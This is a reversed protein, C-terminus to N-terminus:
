STLGKKEAIWHEVIVQSSWFDTPNRHIEHVTSLPFWIGTGEVEVLIAASTEHLIKGIVTVPPRETNQKAM